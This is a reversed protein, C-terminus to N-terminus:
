CFEGDKLTDKFTDTNLGLSSCFRVCPAVCGVEIFWLLAAMAASHCVSGCLMRVFCANCLFLTAM